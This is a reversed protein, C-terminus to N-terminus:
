TVAVLSVLCYLLKLLLYQGIYVKFDKYVKLISQIVRVTKLNSLFTSFQSLYLQISLLEENQSAVVSRKVHM